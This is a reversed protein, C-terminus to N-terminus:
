PAAVPTFLLDQFDFSFDTLPSVPQMKMREISGDPELSFTVYADAHLSRDRWRAVFTDYQWHELDGVLLETRGFRLVLRNGELAITADDRWTDRYRGAYRELPLSPKSDAARASAAAKEVKEADTRQTRRREAWLSVWDTEPRGMYADLVRLSVAQFAGGEEQNTLVVVGLKLDPVLTTKSVYGLLGGTHSVVKRGQYESLVWGLGYTAFNSRLTELGPPPDPNPLITQPSWMERSSAEGFLRANSGPRVAALSGGDLQVIMWKALDAVSSNISGAPGANDLSLPRIVRVAGDVVSHPAAVNTGDRLAQVSTASRTMGVQQFIRERVFDDWSKGTVAPIIQGAVLYLLNDYDYKTRFSSVPRLHRIRAVVEDRTYTTEPFVLLDGAGLGLGSRHTVLDRIRMERTVYPDYMRFAPLREVVPDDWSIKGEEVLMALAATTFAKTNSAIGFLTEADVPALEGARRVGYGKALVVKGDKVVAVALGPVDFTKMTREVYADLDALPPNEARTPAPHGSALLALLLVLGSHRPVYM